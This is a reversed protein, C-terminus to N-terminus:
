RSTISSAFCTNVVKNGSFLQLLIRICNCRQYRTEIVYYPNIDFLRSQYKSSTVLMDRIVFYTINLYTFVNLYLIICIQMYM